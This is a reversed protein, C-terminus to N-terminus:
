SLPCPHPIAEGKRPPLPAIVSRGTKEIKRGQRFISARGRYDGASVGRSYPPPPIITTPPMCSKGCDNCKNVNIM